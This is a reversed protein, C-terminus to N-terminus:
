SRFRLLKLCVTWEHKLFSMMENDSSLILLESSCGSSLHESIEQKTEMLGIPKPVALTGTQKEQWGLEFLRVTLAGQLSEAICVTQTSIRSTGRTPPLTSAM